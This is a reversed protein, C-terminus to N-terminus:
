ANEEPRIFEDRERDNTGFILLDVRCILWICQVDSETQTDLSEFSEGLQDSQPLHTGSLNWRQNPFTGGQIIERHLRAFFVIEAAHFYRRIVVIRKIEAKIVQLERSESGLATKELLGESITKM